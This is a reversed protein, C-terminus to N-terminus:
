KLKLDKYKCDKSDALGSGIVCKLFRVLTCKIESFLYCSCVEKQQLRRNPWNWSLNNLTSLAALVKCRIDGQVGTLMGALIVQLMESGCCPFTKLAFCQVPFPILNATSIKTTSRHPRKDISVM